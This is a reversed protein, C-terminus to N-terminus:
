SQPGIVADGLTPGSLSLHTKNATTLLLFMNGVLILNMLYKHM